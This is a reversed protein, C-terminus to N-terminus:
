NTCLTGSTYVDITNFKQQVILLHLFGIFGKFMCQKFKTSSLFFPYKPDSIEMLYVVIKHEWVKIVPDDPSILNPPFSIDNVGSKNPFDITTSWSEYIDYSYNHYYDICIAYWENFWKEQAHFIIKEQIDYPCRLYNMQLELLSFRQLTLYASSHM